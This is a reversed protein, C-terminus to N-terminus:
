ESKYEPATAILLNCPLDRILKAGTSGEFWRALFGKDSHGIVALDAGIDHAYATIQEAPDGDRVRVHVSVHEGLEDIAAQLAEEISRRETVFFGTAGYAEALAASGVTVVIGLLHLEANCLRALEAAQRLASSTHASGDYALLIKKFM